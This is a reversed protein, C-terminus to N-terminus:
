DNALRWPGGWRTNNGIGASVKAHLDYADQIARGALRQAQAVTQADLAGNEMSALLASAGNVLAAWDLIRDLFARTYAEQPSPAQSNELGFPVDDTPGQLEVGSCMVLLEGDRHDSCILRNRFLFPRAGDVTRITRQVDATRGIEFFTAINQRSERAAEPSMFLDQANEGIVQEEKYGTYEESRRNFRHINGGKDVVVVIANAESVIGEAFALARMSNLTVSEADWLSAAIGAWENAGIKKGILHLDVRTGSIEVELTVISMVGSLARISDIQPQTLKARFSHHGDAELASLELLNDIGSFKWTPRATGFHDVLGRYSVNNESM